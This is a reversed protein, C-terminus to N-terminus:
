MHRSEVNQISTAGETSDADYLKQLSVDRNMSPMRKPLQGTEADVFKKASESNKCYAYSLMGAGLGFLLCLAGVLATATFNTTSETSTPEANTALDDNFDTVEIEELTFNVGLENSVERSFEELDITRSNIAEMEEEKASIKAFIQLSRTETLIRRQFPTLSLEVQGKSVGMKEALNEKLETQRANFDNSTWGQAKMSLTVVHDPKSKVFCEWQMQYNEAISDVESGALNSAFFIACYYDYSTMAALCNSDAECKALCAGRSTRKFFNEPTRVIPVLFGNSKCRDNGLSVLGDSTAAVSCDLVLDKGSAEGTVRTIRESNEGSCTYTVKYTKRIGRCPDGISMHDIHYTCKEEGDCAAGLVDTQDSGDCNSGYIASVITVTKEVNPTADRSCFTFDHRNSTSDEPARHEFRWCQGLAGARVTPSWQFSNCERSPQGQHNPEQTDCATRCSDIDATYTMWTHDMSQGTMKTFGAPCEVISAAIEVDQDESQVLTLTIGFPAAVERLFASPEQIINNIDNMESDQAKIRIYIPLGDMDSLARRVWSLRQLSVTVQNITLGLSTALQSTFAQRNATFQSHTWGNAALELRVVHDTCPVKDMPWFGPSVTRRDTLWCIDDKWGYAVCSTTQQCLQECEAQNAGTYYSNATNHFWQHSTPLDAGNNFDSRRGSGPIIGFPRERAEFTFCAPQSPPDCSVDYAEWGLGVATPNPNCTAGTFCVCNVGNTSNTYHPNFAFFTRQLGSRSLCDARCAAADAVFVNLNLFGAAGGGVTLGDWNDNCAGNFLNRGGCTEQQSECSVAFSEWDAQGDSHCTAGTYCACNNGQPDTGHPKFAFFTRQLGSRSLCDTRCAAADAVFVNLNQTGGAGDGVTIGDWNADCAGGTFLSSGSCTTPETPMKTPSPTTPTQVPCSSRPYENFFNRPDLDACRQCGAICGPHSWPDALARCQQRPTGGLNFTGALSGCSGDTQITGRSFQSMGAMTGINECCTKWDDLAVDDTPSPTPVPTPSDTPALTADWDCEIADFMFSSSPHQPQGSITFGKFSLTTDTPNCAVGNSELVFRYSNKYNDGQDGVIHQVVHSSVGKTAYYCFLQPWQDGCGGNSGSYVRYFAVQLDDNPTSFTPMKCLSGEWWDCRVSFDFPAVSVPLSDGPKLGEEWNRASSITFLIGLAFLHLSSM